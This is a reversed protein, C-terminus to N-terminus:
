RPQEQGVAPVVRHRVGGLRLNQTICRLIKMLCKVVCCLKVRFHSKEKQLHLWWWCQCHNQQRAWVQPGVRSACPLPSWLLRCLRRHEGGQQGPHEGRWSVRPM